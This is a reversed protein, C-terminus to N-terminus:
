KAIVSTDGTSCPLTYTPIGKENNKNMIREGAQLCLIQVQEPTLNAVAEAAAKNGNAETLNRTAQKAATKNAEDAVATERQQAAIRALANNTAEDPNVDRIQVDVLQIGYRALRQTALASVGAANTSWQKGDIANVNTLGGYFENVAGQIQPTIIDKEIKEDDGTRVQRYLEPALDKTTAWRGSVRVGVQGSESTRVASDVTLTEPRTPLTVIDTWPATVVPGSDIGKGVSGLTVPVGTENAKVVHVSSVLLFLTFIVFFVGFISGWVVKDSPRDGQRRERLRREADTEGEPASPYGDAKLFGVFSGAALLFLIVTTVISWM